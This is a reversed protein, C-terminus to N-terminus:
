PGNTVLFDADVLQQDYKIDQYVYHGLLTDAEDSEHTPAEDGDWGYYTVGIPIGADNVYTVVKRYSPEAQPRRYEVVLPTVTQGSLTDEPLVRCTVDQTRALDQRRERLLREALLLMGTENIAYRSQRMALPGSPDLKVTRRFLLKKAPRVVVRGDYRDAMFAAKQGNEWTLYVAFPEHRIKLGLTEPDQLRGDILEQKFLRATYDQQQLLRARGRELLKIQVALTERVPNVPADDVVPRRRPPRADGSASPTAQIAATVAKFEHQQGSTEVASHLIMAISALGLSVTTLLRLQM